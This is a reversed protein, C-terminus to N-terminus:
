SAWDIFSVRTRLALFQAKASILSICVNARLLAVHLWPLSVFTTASDKCTCHCRCTWMCEPYMRRCMSCVFPLRLTVVQSSVVGTVVQQVQVQGRLEQHVSKRQPMATGAHAKSIAIAMALQWM